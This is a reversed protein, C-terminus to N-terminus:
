SSRRSGFTVYYLSFRVLGLVFVFYSTTHLRFSGFRWYSSSWYGFLGEWSCFRAHFIRFLSNLTMNLRLGGFEPPEESLILFSGEFIQDSFDFHAYLVSRRGMGHARETSYHWKLELREKSPPGECFILFIRRRPPSKAWLQFLAEFTQDGFEYDAYLVRHEEMGHTRETSNAKNSRESAFDDTYNEISIYAITRKIDFQIWTKM